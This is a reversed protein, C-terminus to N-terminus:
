KKDVEKFKIERDAYVYYKKEEQPNLVEVSTVKGSDVVSVEVAKVYGEAMENKITVQTTM